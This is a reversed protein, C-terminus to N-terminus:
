FNFKIGLNASDVDVDDFKYRDWGGRLSVQESFAYEAGLGFTLDTGSDKGGILNQTGVTAKVDGDWRQFGVRAFISVSESLPVSGVARAGFSQGDLEIRGAGIKEEFTGFNAYFGELSFNPNFRYGGFIEGGFTRDNLGSDDVSNSLASAGAYGGADAAFVNASMASLSLVSAALIKHFKM